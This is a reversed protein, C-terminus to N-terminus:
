GSIGAFYCTHSAVVAFAIPSLYIESIVCVTTYLHLSIADFFLVIVRLFRWREPLEDVRVHLFSGIMVRMVMLVDTGIFGQVPNSPEKCDMGSCFYPNSLTHSFLNSNVRLIGRFVWLHVSSHIRPPQFLM